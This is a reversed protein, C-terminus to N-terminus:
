LTSAMLNSLHRYDRQDRQRFENLEPVMPFYTSTAEASCEALYKIQGYAFDLTFGEVEALNGAYYHWLVSTPHFGVVLGRRHMEAALLWEAFHGFDPRFGGASCYAERRVVFCQDMVKLWGDSELERKIHSAYVEAEVESLLNHVIPTTPCSFGAWEPNQAAVELLDHLATPEPLCHSETFILLESTSLRAAEVILPMDHKLPRKLLRDWPRLYKRLQSEIEEGLTDPACVILEYRKDPYTQGQAWRQICDVAQGRHFEVPILISVDRQDFEQM